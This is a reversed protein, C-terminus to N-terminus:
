LLRNQVMNSLIDYDDISLGTNHGENERFDTTPTSAFPFCGVILSVVFRYKQEKVVVVVVVVV